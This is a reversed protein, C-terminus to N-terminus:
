RPRHRGRVAKEGIKNITIANAPCDKMCIKCGICKEAHFKLKGRFKEPKEVKVFPYLVTAPKKLVAKLVESSMRGPKKM